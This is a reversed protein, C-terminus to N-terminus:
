DGTVIGKRKILESLATSYAASQYNLFSDDSHADRDGFESHVAGEGTIRAEPCTAFKDAFYKLLPPNRVLIPGTMYTGLLNKYRIGEASSKDNAGPGLEAHFPREINGEQGDGARNIFGILREPLFSAKYVCDGTVRTPLQVTEFDLVGLAEYREGGEEKIARGFLEHSNGTALVPLGAEVMSVLLEKYRALDRMCARQSRETGSGIYVFDYCGFDVEDGVSRKDVLAHRGRVALERQLVAVNAWDGYLNMLDHYLHLIRLRRPTQSLQQTRPEAKKEKEPEVM